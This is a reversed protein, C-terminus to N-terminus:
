SLISCMVGFHFSGGNHIFCDDGVSEIQGEGHGHGDPDGLVQVFSSADEEDFAEM